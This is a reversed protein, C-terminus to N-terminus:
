ATRRRLRNGRLKHRRFFARKLLEASCVYVLVILAMLGLFLGPLPAFGFVPGLPTYPLALTVGVVLLTSVILARSPRSRWFPGRTRVVLVV